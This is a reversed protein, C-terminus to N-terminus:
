DEFLEWFHENVVKQIESDPEEQSEFLNYVFKKHIKAEEKTLKRHEPFLRECFEIWTKSDPM